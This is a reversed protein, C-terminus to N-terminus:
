SDAESLARVLRPGYAVELPFPDAVFAWHREGVSVLRGPSGSSIDEKRM